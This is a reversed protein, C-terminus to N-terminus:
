CVLHFAVYVLALQRQNPQELLNYYKWFPHGERLDEFFIHNFVKDAAKWSDQKQM